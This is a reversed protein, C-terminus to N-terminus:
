KKVVITYGKPIANVLLGKILAEAQKDAMELGGIKKIEKAAEKEALAIGKNADEKKDDNFLAFGEDFYEISDADVKVDQVEAQPIKVYVIKERDNVTIEIKEVDIGIRATAEYLMTYDGRTLFKVGEDEYRVKGTYHLKATTLESSEKLTSMLLEADVKKLGCGFLVLMLVILVMSSMVRKLVIKKNM